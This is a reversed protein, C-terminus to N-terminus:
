LRRYGSISRCEFMCATCSVVKSFKTSFVIGLYEFIESNSSTSRFKTSLIRLYYRISSRRSTPLFHIIFNSGEFYAGAFRRTIKNLIYLFDNDLNNKSPSAAMPFYSRKDNFINSILINFKAYYYQGFVWCWIRTASAFPVNDDSKRLRIMSFWFKPETM